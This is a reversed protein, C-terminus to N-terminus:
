ITEAGQSHTTTTTKLLYKALRPALGRGARKSAHNDARDAAGTVIFFAHTFAVPRSTRPGLIAVVAVGSGAQGWILLNSATLSLLKTTTVQRVSARTCGHTARHERGNGSCGDSGLSKNKNRYIFKSWNM